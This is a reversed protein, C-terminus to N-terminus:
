ELSNLYNDWYAKVRDHDAFSEKRVDRLAYRLSASYQDLVNVLSMADRKILAVEAKSLAGDIAASLAAVCMYYERKNHNWYMHYQKAIEYCEKLSRM